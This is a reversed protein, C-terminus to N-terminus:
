STRHKELNVLTSDGDPLVVTAPSVQRPPPADFIEQVKAPLGGTVVGVRLGNAGLARRAEEDVAQDDALDWLSEGSRMM